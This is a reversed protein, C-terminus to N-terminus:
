TDADPLTLAMLAPLELMPAVRPLTLPLVMIVTCGGGSTFIVIVGAEFERGAPSDCCSVAVPVYPSPDVASTEAVAVHVLELEVTAPTDFLPATAAREWPVAVTEAVTPLMVPVDCNVTVAATTVDSVTAGVM